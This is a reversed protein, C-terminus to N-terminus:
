SSTLAQSIPKWTEKAKLTLELERQLLPLPLVELLDTDYGGCSTWDQLVSGPVPCVYENTSTCYKCPCSVIRYHPRETNHQETITAWANLCSPCIFALPVVFYGRYVPAREVAYCRHEYSLSIILKM